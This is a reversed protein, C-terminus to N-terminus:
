RPAETLNRVYEAPWGFEVHADAAKGDLTATMSIENLQLHHIPMSWGAAFHADFTMDAGTADTVTGSVRRHVMREDLEAKASARVIPSVVGGRSVYGNILVDGQANMLGCHLSVSRDHASANIWKWHQLYNWDRTGWSHDRHGIGDITIERGRLVLRGSTRGSQEYRDVALWAPCGDENDHWTFPPHLGDFRLSLECEDDAYELEATQLPEPQRWRLGNVEFDLLDDGQYTADSESTLYLPADVDPGAVFLFRGWKTGGERWLYAFVLLREAPIPATILLSERALPGAASHKDHLLDDEPRFQTLTSM